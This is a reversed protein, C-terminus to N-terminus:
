AGKLEKIIRRVGSDLKCEWVVRVRWGERNLQRRVRKDRAVNRGIKKRWYTANSAPMRAGRRCAHGHWFCGNVFVAMRHKPMVVDPAGALKDSHLSFRLGARHLASRVAMEPRTHKGKVRAMIRSRTKADFVDPM